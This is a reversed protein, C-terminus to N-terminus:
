VKVYAWKYVSHKRTIHRIDALRAPSDLIADKCRRQKVLDPFAKCQAVQPWGEDPM